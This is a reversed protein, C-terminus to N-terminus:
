SQEQQAAKFYNILTQFLETPNAHLLSQHKIPLYNIPQLTHDGVDAIIQSDILYLTPNTDTHQMSFHHDINVEVEIRNSSLWDMLRTKFQNLLATDVIRNGTLTPQFKGSWIDGVIRIQDLITGGWLYFHVKMM